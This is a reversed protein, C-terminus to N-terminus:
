SYNSHRPCLIHIFKCHLLRDNVSLVGVNRLNHAEMGLRLISALTTDRAYNLHEPPTAGNWQLGQYNLKVLLWWDSPPIIIRKCNVGSCLIGDVTIRLNSHFVKIMIDFCSYRLMLIQKLGHHELHNQFEFRAEEFFGFHMVKPPVISRHAFGTGFELM